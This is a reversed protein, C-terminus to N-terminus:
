GVLRFLVFHYLVFGLLRFLLREGARGTATIPYGSYCCCVVHVYFVVAAVIWFVCFCFVFFLCVVFFVPPPQHTCGCRVGINGQTWSYFGHCVM